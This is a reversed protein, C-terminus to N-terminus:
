DAAVPAAVATRKKSKKVPPNAALEAAAQAVVEREAAEKALRLTRLRITKEENAVQIRKREILFATDGKRENRAARERRLADPSQKVAM